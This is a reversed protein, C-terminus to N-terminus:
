DTNESVLYLNNIDVCIFDTDNHRFMSNQHFHGYIFSKPNGYECVKNFMQDILFRERMLDDKLKNDYRIYQNVIENLKNPPAFSTTTHTVIRDIYGINDLKDLELKFIEDEWYTNSGREIKPIRNISIAGGIFLWKEGNIERITYDSLLELNSYKHQGNFFSPNDHNGRIAWLTNNKSRLIENLKHFLEVYDVLPNLGAGFDGVQIILSNEVPLADIVRFDEHIDGLCYVKNFNM